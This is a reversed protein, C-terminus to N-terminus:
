QELEKMRDALGREIQIACQEYEQDPGGVPDPVDEDQLILSTRKEADPAMSLVAQRHSETMVFIKDARNIEEQTLQSSRHKAIDIGRKKMAKVSGESVGGFGGATGASHVLIRHAPLQDVRCGVSQALRHKALGEAMPSRCTNGTCVFLLHLTALKEVIRQDLVGTRLFELEYGRVRVITSAGAYRTSDGSVLLDVDVGELAKRAEEGSRPPATGARNASAAVVPGPVKGLLGTAWDDHPCRLGITSDLYLADVTEPPLERLAPTSAPERVDVVLTLPGPWAKRMLRRALPSLDDTYQLADAVSAVHLTFPKGDERDKARRLRAVSEPLDARAGLGYVTETPFAVLGGDELVKAARSTMVDRDAGDGITLIETIM